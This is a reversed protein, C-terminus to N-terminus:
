THGPSEDTGFETRLKRRIEEWYRSGLDTEPFTLSATLQKLIYDQALFDKGMQTSAFDDPIISGHEYPSLNVWFDQEPITLATLFYKILKMAEESLEKGDKATDGNNIIFDIHFPNDRHLKLGVLATPMFHRSLKVMEGLAPLAGLSDSFKMTIPEQRVIPEDSQPEPPLRTASPFVGFVGTIVTTIVAFVGGVLAVQVATNQYWKQAM